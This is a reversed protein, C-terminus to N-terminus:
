RPVIHAADVQVRLAQGILDVSLMVTARIADKRILRGVVGCLPGHIVEVMAGERIFPCPDGQIANAVLLRLNNVECDDIPAPKGDFSVIRLVGTCRLIPLIDTMPFRAFCYGAFLPWEITKFRDKWRSVRHVTPLFAEINKGVLQQHVVKEHRSRTAIAYWHGADTLPAHVYGGHARALVAPPPAVVAPEVNDLPEM